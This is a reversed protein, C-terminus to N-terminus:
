PHVWMARNMFRQNNFVFQITNFVFPIPDLLSPPSKWPVAFVGVAGLALVTAVLPGSGYHEAMGRLRAGLNNLPEM